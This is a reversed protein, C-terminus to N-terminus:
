VTLVVRDMAPDREFLPCARICYTEPHNANAPVSEADWGPVPMLRESWPCGTWASPVSHLCDWCLQAPQRKPMRKKGPAKKLKKQAPTNKKKVM